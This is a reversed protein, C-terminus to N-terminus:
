MCRISVASVLIEKRTSCEFHVLKHCRELLRTGQNVGVFAHKMRLERLTGSHRFNLHEILSNISIHPGYLFYDEADDCIIEIHELPSHQVLRRVWVCMNITHRRSNSYSHTIELSRLHRIRPLSHPHFIQKNSNVEVHYIALLHRAWLIIFSNSIQLGIYIRSSPSSSTMNLRSLLALRSARYPKSQLHYHASFVLHSPDVIMREFQRCLLKNSSNNLRFSWIQSVTLHLTLLPKRLNILCEHLSLLIDSTPSALILHQLSQLEKLIHLITPSDSPTQASPESDDKGGSCRYM